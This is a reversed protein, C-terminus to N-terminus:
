KKNILSVGTVLLCFAIAQSISIILDTRSINAVHYALLICILLAPLLIIISKLMGIFCFMLVKSFGKGNTQSTIMKSFYENLFIYFVSVLIFSVEVVLSIIIETMTHKLCILIITTTLTFLVNLAVSFNLLKKSFNSFNIKSIKM